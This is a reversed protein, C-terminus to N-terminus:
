RWAEELARARPFLINNELHMHRHLDREFEHLADLCIRHTLGASVPLVYERVLLRIRSMARAASEHEREMMRIPNEVSGFPSPATAGGMALEAIYPFLIREERLQHARLEHAVGGMLFAVEHFYPHHTGNQQAMSRTLEIPAPATARVYEHHRRVIYSTLTAATWTEFRPPESGQSESVRGLREVVAELPLERELCAEALTRDGECFYDIGLDDFVASTRLDDMVIARLPTDATPTMPAEWDPLTRWPKRCAAPREVVAILGPLL